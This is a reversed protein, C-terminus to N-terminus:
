INARLADVVKLKPIRAGSIVSALWTAGFGIAAAELLMDTTVRIEAEYGIASGPPPPMSIGITSLLWALGLGVTCGVLAGAIGTFVGEIVVLSYIWRPKRGLALLTGFEGTREVISMSVSNTVTLLVMCLIIIKLVGFQTTYLAVTKVYFDAIEDWRLWEVAEPNLYDGMQRAFANTNETEDLLVVIKHAGQTQLLDQAAQLGIQVARADYEESFTRFVGAVQFEGTNVGGGEISNLISVSDGPALQLATAVGEGIMIESSGAASVMEGAVLEVRSGLERELDYQVGQGIIPLEAEGNSLLGSFEIRQTVVKVGDQRRLVDLIEDPSKIRYRWLDQRGYEQFGAKFVQVHGLQSRITFDRLQYFIDNIFGGALLLTIVGGAIAVVTLMSRGRHRSVNRAALRITMLM